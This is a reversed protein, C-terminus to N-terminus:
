PGVPNPVQLLAGRKAGDAEDPIATVFVSRGDPAIALNSHHALPLRVAERLRGDAAFVAFGGGDYQAVFVNGHADTRVGDPTFRTNAALPGFATQAAFLRRHSLQASGRITFALVRAADSEAVYLTGNDPSVAVGNAYRIGTAVERVHHATDRYFVKGPTDASGSATFYVGGHHDATLDNPHILPNGADDTNIERLTRGDTTIEVIAGSDYCAVLLGDGSPALGNAGCGDRQWVRQAEGGVIRLVESRGYDVFYLTTGVFVTGEPFQLGDVITRATATPTAVPQAQIPAFPLLGLVGVMISRAFHVCANTLGESNM